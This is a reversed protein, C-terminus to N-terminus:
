QFDFDQLNNNNSINKTQHGQGTAAWYWLWKFKFHNKDDIAASVLLFVLLDRATIAPLFLVAPGVAAPVGWATGTRWLREVPISGPESEFDRRSRGLLIDRPWLLTEEHTGPGNHGV